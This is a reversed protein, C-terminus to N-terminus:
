KSARRSRTARPAVEETTAAEAVADADVETEEESNVVADDIINALDDDGDDDDLGPLEAPAVVASTEVTRPNNRGSISEQYEDEFPNEHEELEEQYARLEEGYLYYLIQITTPKQGQNGATLIQMQTRDRRFVKVRQVWDKDLRWGFDQDRSANIGMDSSNIYAAITPELKAYHTEGSKINFFGIGQPEQVQELFESM